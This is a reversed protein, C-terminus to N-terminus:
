YDRPGFVFKWQSDGNNMKEFTTTKSVCMKPEKNSKDTVSKADTIDCLATIETHLIKITSIYLSLWTCSMTTFRLLEDELFLDLSPM